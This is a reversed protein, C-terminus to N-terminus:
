ENTPIHNTHVVGPDGPKALKRSTTHCHPANCNSDGAAQTDDESAFEHPRHCDVCGLDAHNATVYARSDGGQQGYDRGAVTTAPDSGQDEPDHCSDCLKTAHVSLKSQHAYDTRVYANNKFAFLYATPMGKDLPIYAAHPQSDLWAGYRALRATDKSGPDHCVDCRTAQWDTRDKVTWPGQANVPTVFHAIANSYFAAATDDAAGYSATRIRAGPVTGSPDVVAHLGLAQFTAHCVLCDDKPVEDGNHAADGLIKAASASHLDTRSAWQDHENPHCSACDTGAVHGHCNDCLLPISVYSGHTLVGFLVLALVCSTVLARHGYLARRLAGGERGSGGPTRPNLASM